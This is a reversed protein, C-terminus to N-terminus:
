WPRFEHTKLTQMKAEIFKPLLMVYYLLLRISSPGKFTTIAFCSTYTYIEGEIYVLQDVVLTERGPAPSVVRSGCLLCGQAVSLEDKKRM